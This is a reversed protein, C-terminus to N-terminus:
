SLQPSDKPLFDSKLFNEVVMHVFFVDNKQYNDWIKSYKDFFDDGTIAHLVKMQQIVFTMYSGKIADVQNLDSYVVWYGIDYHDINAKIVKIGEFFMKKAAPSGTVRYYDWIGFLAWMHGNLVHNPKQENPYEEYWTGKNTSMAVGQRSLPLELWKFAKSAAEYYTKDHTDQYARLLLSIGMSQTLGSIWPAKVGLAPVGQEWEWRGDKQAGVFLDAWKIFADHYQKKNTLLFAEYNVLGCQADMTRSSTLKPPKESSCTYALVDEGNGPILPRHIYYYGLQPNSVDNEEARYLEGKTSFGMEDTYNKYWINGGVSSLYQDVQKTRLAIDSSTPKASPNTIAFTQEVISSIIAQPISPNAHRPPANYTAAFLLSFIVLIVIYFIIKIPKFM